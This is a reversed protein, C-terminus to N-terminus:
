NTFLYGKDIVDLKFDLPQMMRLYNMEQTAEELTCFYKSYSCDDTGFLYVRFPLYEELKSLSDIYEKALHLQVNIPFSHYVDVKSPLSKNYYQERLKYPLHYTKWATEIPEIGFTGEFEFEVIEAHCGKLCGGEPLKYEYAGGWCEATDETFELFEVESIQKIYPICKSQKRLLRTKHYNYLELQTQQVFTDWDVSTNYPEEDELPRRVKYTITPLDALNLTDVFRIPEVSDGDKLFLNFEYSALKDPRNFSYIRTNYFYVGQKFGKKNKHYETVKIVM